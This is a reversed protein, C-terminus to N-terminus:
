CSSPFYINNLCTFGHRGREYYNETADDIFGVIYSDCLANNDHDVHMSFKNSGMYAFDREYVITPAFEVFHSDCLDNKDHDVQM